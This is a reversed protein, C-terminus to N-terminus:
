SAVIFRLLAEATADPNEECLFHGSEIPGGTVNTAWRRWTDLPTAAGAAIGSAGWLALMPITITRGADRDAEDHAVDTTAGASLEGLSIAESTGPRELGVGTGVRESDPSSVARTM